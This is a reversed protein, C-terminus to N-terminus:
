SLLNKLENQHARTANMVATMQDVGKKMEEEAEKAIKAFLEPDNSIATFLKEKQQETLGAGALQRELMKKLLFDRFMHAM